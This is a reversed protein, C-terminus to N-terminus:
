GRCREWRCSSACVGLACWTFEQQVGLCVPDLTSPHVCAQPSPTTSGWLPPDPQGCAATDKSQSHTHFSSALPLQTCDEGQLLLNRELFFIQWACISCKRECLCSWVGGGGWLPNAGLVGGWLCLKFAALHCSALTPSTFSQQLYSCTPIYASQTLLGEGPPNLGM